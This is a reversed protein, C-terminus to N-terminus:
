RAGRIFSTKGCQHGLHEREPGTLNFMFRVDFGVSAFVNSNM